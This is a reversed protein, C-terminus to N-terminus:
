QKDKSSSSKARAERAAFQASKDTKKPKKYEVEELCAISCYNAPNFTGRPEERITRIQERCRKNCVECIPTTGDDSTAMSSNKDGTAISSNDSTAM